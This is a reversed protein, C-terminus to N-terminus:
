ETPPTTKPNSFGRGRGLSSPGIMSLEAIWSNQSSKRSNLTMRTNRGPAVMAEHVCKRLKPNEHATRLFRPRKKDLPTFVLEFPWTWREARLVIEFFYPLLALQENVRLCGKLGILFSAEQLNM